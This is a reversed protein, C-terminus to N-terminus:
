IRDPTARRGRADREGCLRVFGYSAVFLVLVVGVLALDAM